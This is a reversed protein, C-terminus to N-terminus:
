EDASQAWILEHLDKPECGLIMAAQIGQALTFNKERLKVKTIFQRSLGMRRALEAQNIGARKCLYTLRSAGLQLTVAM